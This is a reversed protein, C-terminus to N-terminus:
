LLVELSEIENQKMVHLQQRAAVSENWLDFPLALENKLSSFDRM